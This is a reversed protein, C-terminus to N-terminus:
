ITLLRRYGHAPISSNGFFSVIQSAYSTGDIAFDTLTSSVAATENLHLTFSWSYGQANAQQQYIADPTCSPVVNSDPEGSNWEAVLNYADVSGWGTM